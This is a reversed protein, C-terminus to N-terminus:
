KMKFVIKNDDEWYKNRAKAKKGNEVCKQLCEECYKNNEVAAKGCWLCLHNKIREERINPRNFSKRRQREADKELCVGCKAKGPVAKRKGCKTCIGQEKRIQYLIKQQKSLRDAYRKKQEKTPPNRYKYMTHKALCDPCM